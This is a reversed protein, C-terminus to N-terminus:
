EAVFVRVFRRVLRGDIAALGLAILGMGAVQAASLREALFVTGLLIASVPILFTVLLLNTAGATALIRFYLIYALATSVLALAVVAALVGGIPVILAGAGEAALVAPVIMVTAASAQGAALVVPPLGRFRRGFIGALAYCAAAGLVAIQGVVNGGLGTLASPGIM